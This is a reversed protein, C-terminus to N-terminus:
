RYPDKRTFFRKAGLEHIVRIKAPHLREFTRQELPDHGELRRRVIFSVYHALATCPEMPGAVGVAPEEVGRKNSLRIDRVGRSVASTLEVLRGSRPDLLIEFRRSRESALRDQLLGAALDEFLGDRTGGDRVTGFWAYAEFPLRALVEILRTRVEADDKEYDFPRKHLAVVEPADRLHADRIFTQRAELIARRATDPDEIVVCAVLEIPTDAVWGVCSVFGYIPRGRLTDASAVVLPTRTVPPPATDPVTASHGADKASADLRRAVLSEVDKELRVAFEDPTAYQTYGGALSGDHNTFREFFQDVLQQQRRKEDIEPDRLDIQVISTRRYILIDKVARRANEWEWETGSLYPSGDPKHRDALLTGMRGWLIVITLDCESPKPAGRDVSEQPTIAALMPVPADPDDWSVVEIAIKGKLLPKRPLSGLVKVAADRETKVDRPSSLFVRLYLPQPM